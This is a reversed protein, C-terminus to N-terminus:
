VGSILKITRLIDHEHKEPKFDAAQIVLNAKHASILGIQVKDSILGIQVKDSQVNCMCASDLATTSVVSVAILM